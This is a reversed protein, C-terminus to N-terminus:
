KSALSLRICGDVPFYPPGSGLLRRVAELQSNRLVAQSVDKLFLKSFVFSIKRRGVQLPEKWGGALM